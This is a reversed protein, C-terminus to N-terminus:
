FRSIGRHVKSWVSYRPPTPVIGKLAQVVSEPKGSWKQFVKDNLLPYEELIEGQERQDGVIIPLVRVEGSSAELNLAANLERKPWKKSIFTKSLIVIVYRSIKLGQNVKETISDGWGIEAQDHWYTIGARDFARVLPIVVSRKDESAHCLFVDKQRTVIEEEMHVAGHCNDEEYHNAHLGNKCAPTRNPVDLTAVFIEDAEGTLM